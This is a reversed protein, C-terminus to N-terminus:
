DPTNSTLFWAHGALSLLATIPQRLKGIFNTSLPTCGFKYEYVNPAIYFALNIWQLLLLLIMISSGFVLLLLLLWKKSTKNYLQGLQLGGIM